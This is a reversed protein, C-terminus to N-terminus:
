PQLSAIYATIDLIDEESLNQVIPQMLQAGPGVRTFRQFDYLQRALCSPSRGALLPFNEDGKLGEGHCAACAEACNKLAPPATQRRAGSQRPV